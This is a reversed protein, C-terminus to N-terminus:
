LRWRAHHRAGNGGACARAREKGVNIGGGRKGRWAFDSRFRSVFGVAECVRAVGCRARGTRHEWQRWALGAFAGFFVVRFCGRVLNLAKSYPGVAVAIGAAAMRSVCVVRAAVREGRGREARPIERHARRPRTRREQASVISPQDRLCHDPGPAGGRGWGPRSRVVMPSVRYWIIIKLDPILCVCVRAPQTM